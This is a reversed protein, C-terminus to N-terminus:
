PTSRRCAGPRGAGAPPRGHPGGGIARHAGKVPDMRGIWLPYGDENARLPWQDVAIPNPVVADVGLGAPASEAQSQSIAVLRAKHGHRVFFGAIEAVFPGHLTQVVPAGARGAMALATFGSHDHVVDFGRGREAATDIEDWACAVHDSERLASGIL